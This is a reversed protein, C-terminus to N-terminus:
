VSFCCSGSGVQSGLLGGGAAGLIAGGAEKSGNAQCGVLVLLGIALTAIVNRRIM